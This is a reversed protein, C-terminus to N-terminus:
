DSSKSSEQVSEENPTTLETIASQFDEMADADPLKSCLWLYKLVLESSEFEDQNGYFFTELEEIERIVDDNKEYDRWSGKVGNTFILMLIKENKASEYRKVAEKYQEDNYNPRWKDKGGERVIHYPVDPEGVKASSLAYLLAPPVPKLIVESEDQFKYKPIETYM